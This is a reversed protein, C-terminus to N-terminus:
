SGAWSGGGATAACGAVTAGAGGNPRLGAYAMLAFSMRNRESAAALIREVGVDSPIELISQGVAKPRPMGEPMARLYKRAVAFRLVSRIVM